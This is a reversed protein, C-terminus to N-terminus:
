LIYLMHNFAVLPNIASVGSISPLLVAIPKGNDRRGHEEYSVLIQLVHTDRLFILSVKAAGEPIFRSHYTHIYVLEM